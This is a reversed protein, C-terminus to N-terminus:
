GTGEFSEETDADSVEASETEGAAEAEDNETEERRRWWRYGLYALVALAILVLLPVVWWPLGQSPPREVRVGVNVPKSLLDDGDPTTYLFDVSIPYAKTAADGSASVTFEIRTSENPELASVFAQSDDVSLPSDAFAKARVNTVRVGRNNTIELVVDASGGATVNVSVPDVLFPDRAPAISVDAVLPDTTRRDDDDDTYTVRYTFQRVGADGSESIEVPLTFEASAGAALDGVAAETEIPNVNGTDTVLEVGVLTVNRPGRNTVRTRVRGEEGVRLTSEVTAVSFAQKAAPTAGFPLADSQRRQGEADEYSVSARLAVAQGASETGADVRYRVSRTEGSEWTGVFRTDNRGGTLSLAGSESVLSVTADTLTRNRRNELVLLVTGTDDAQLDTKVATLSFDDTESAVDVVVSFPDTTRRDGNVTVYEVVVTVRKEGPQATDLVSVPLSFDADDDPELDGLVFETERPRLTDGAETVRVVATSVNRPGLNVVTGNVRGEDGVRLTGSVDRVAFAQESDPLVAVTLTSQRTDGDRDTYSVTLTLPYARPGGSESVSADVTITREDGRNWDGVYRTANGGAGLTLDANSSSVTVTADTADRARLNSLTVSVTGSEGVQLDTDVDRVAFQDREDRIRVSDFLRDSRRSDGDRNVYEVVFSLRREGPKASEPVRVPFSFDESEDEELDGLVFTSRQAIVDGDGDVLRVVAESVDNPGENTITGRVRGDEGVRLSGRVDDVSFTQEDDLRVGFFYPLSRQRDGYEDTYRVTATLAYRQRATGNVGTADVEITREEGEDWDGVYRTSANREGALQLDGNLSRVTVAADTLDEEGTNELTLEITGTEGVQLDDDVDVVEFRANEGVVLHVYFKETEYDVDRDDETISQTYAYRVTVPVEYVGPDADEEVDIEFGAEAVSGSTVDGLPTTGTRVEIPADGERLKVRVNRATTVAREADAPVDLGGEEVVGGNSLKVVFQTREGPSVRNDPAFAQLWPSGEVRVPKSPCPTTKRRTTPEPTSKTATPKTTTRTTTRTTTTTRRTTTTRTTTRTTTTHKTGHRALAAHAAPADAATECASATRAPSQTPATSAAPAVAVLVALSVALLYTNRTM